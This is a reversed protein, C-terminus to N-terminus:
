ARLLSAEPLIESLRQTARAIERISERMQMDRLAIELSVALAASRQQPRQSIIFAIENLTLQADQEAAILLTRELNAL